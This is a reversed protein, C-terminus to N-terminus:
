ILRENLSSTDETASNTSTIGAVYWFISEIRGPKRNSWLAREVVDTASPFFQRRLISFICTHSNTNNHKYLVLWLFLEFVLGMIVYVIIAGWVQSTVLHVAVRFFFFHVQLEILLCPQSLSPVWLTTCIRYSRFVRNFVWHVGCIYLVM